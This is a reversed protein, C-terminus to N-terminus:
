VLIQEPKQEDKVIIYKKYKQWNKQQTFDGKLCQTLPFMAPQTSPLKNKIYNFTHRNEHDYKIKKELFYIRKSTVMYHM